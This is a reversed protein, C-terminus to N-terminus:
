LRLGRGEVDHVGGVGAVDRALDNISKALPPNGDAEVKRGVVEPNKLLLSMLDAALLVVAASISLRARLSTM